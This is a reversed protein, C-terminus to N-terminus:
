SRWAELVSTLHDRLVEAVDKTVEVSMIYRLDHIVRGGELNFFKESGFALNVRDGFQAIYTVNCPQSKNFCQTALMQNQLHKEATLENKEDVSTISDNM